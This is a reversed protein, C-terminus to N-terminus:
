ISALIRNIQRLHHHLHDNLFHLTQEPTLYGVVPHKFIERDLSEIPLSEFTKYLDQRVVEWQELTRDKDRNEPDPLAPPAAFKKPSKLAVKLARSKLQNSVGAKSLSDLALLKKGIYQNTGYEAIIIHNVVQSISWGGDAPATTFNDNSVPELQAVLDAKQAKLRETLIGIKSM